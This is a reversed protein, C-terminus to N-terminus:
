EELPVVNGDKFASFAYKIGIPDGNSDFTFTGIVGEYPPMNYLWDKICNTDEGCQQMAKAILKLGDYRSAVAFASFPTKGTKKHYDDFLKRAQPTESNVVGATGYFIMGELIEPYESAKAAEYGRSGYLPALGLEKAQKAIIVGVTGSNTNLFYADPNAAKMKTLQTRVDSAESDFNEDAVIETGSETAWKKFDKRISQSFDTQENLLALKAYGKDLLHAVLLRDWYAQQV